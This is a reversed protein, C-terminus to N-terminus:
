PRSAILDAVLAETSAAMREWTLMRARERGAAGLASAREADTLLEVLAGATAVHDTADVLLGTEGHVVAEAAAGRDGAVSPLGRAAAELYVLGYGEGGGDAPLRSPMALVHACAFWGDLEERSVHGAFVVSDHLSWARATRELEGRLPGEGIVVWRVGPVRARVLPMARLMVDFGKYRDALRAVTLITPPGNNGARDPAATAVDVGPPIVHLRAPDAGATRAVQAAHQSLVITATSRALAFRALAPRHGLEMAYAYQVTPVRLRRGLWLAAPSTVIHGCIVADPRWALGKRISAANLRAMTTRRLGRATTVRHTPRASASAADPHDLTVVLTEWGGANAVLEGILRQIGGVAPPFDPTTVLVRPRSV